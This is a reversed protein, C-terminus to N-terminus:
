SNPGHGASPHCRACDQPATTQACDSSKGSAGRATIEGMLAGHCRICNAELVRANQPTIRIPDKIEMVTFAVSHRWGNGAKSSLKNVPNDHPLHCDNCTAAAHHSGHRWSEYQAQMVHCNRCAGPDNTFYSPGDAAWFAFLSSGLFVGVILALAIPGHRFRGKAGALPDATFHRGLSFSSRKRM